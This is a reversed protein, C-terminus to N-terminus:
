TSAELTPPHDLPNKLTPMPPMPFNYKGARVNDAFDDIDFVYKAGDHEVARDFQYIVTHNVTGDRGLEDPEAETVVTQAVVRDTLFVRRYTGIITRDTLESLKHNPLIQLIDPSEYQIALGDIIGSVVQGSKM